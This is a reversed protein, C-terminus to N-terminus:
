AGQKEEGHGCVGLVGLNKTLRTVKGELLQVCWAAVGQECRVEATVPDCGTM